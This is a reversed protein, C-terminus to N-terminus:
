SLSPPEWVRVADGECIWRLPSECERPYVTKRGPSWYGCNWSYGTSVTVVEKDLVTGDVWRWQSRSDTWSLGIWYYNNDKVLRGLLELESNDDIVVLQAGMSSCSQNAFEWSRWDPSVYYCRGSDGGKWGEPCCQQKRKGTSPDVCFKELQKRYREAESRHTESKNQNRELESKMEKLEKEKKELKREWDSSNQKWLVTGLAIVTVLLVCVTVGLSISVCSRSRSQRSQEGGPEREARRTVTEYVDQAPKQLGTYVSDTDM